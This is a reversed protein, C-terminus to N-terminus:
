WLNLVCVRVVEGPWKVGTEVPKNYGAQHAKLRKTALQSSTLKDNDKAKDSATCQSFTKVKGCFISASLAMILLWKRANGLAHLFM